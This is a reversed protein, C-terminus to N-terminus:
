HLLEVHLSQNVLAIACGLMAYPDEERERREWGGREREREQLGEEGGREKRERGKRGRGEM